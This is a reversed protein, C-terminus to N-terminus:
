TRRCGELEHNQGHLHGQDSGRPANSRIKANVIIKTPYLGIPSEVFGAINLSGPAKKNLAEAEEILSVSIMAIDAKGDALDKLGNGSGNSVITLTLGTEKEISVKNPVIVGGAVTSSGHVRLEAAVSPVILSLLLITAVVTLSPLARASM